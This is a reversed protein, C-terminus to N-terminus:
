ERVALGDLWFPLTLASSPCQGFVLKDGNLLFSKRLCVTASCKYRRVLHNSGVFIGSKPRPNRGLVRTVRDSLKEIQDANNSWVLLQAPLNEADLRRSVRHGQRPVRGLKWPWM